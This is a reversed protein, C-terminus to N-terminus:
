RGGSGAVSGSVARAHRSAGVGKSAPQGYLEPHKYLGRERSSKTEEVVLPHAKAYADQRVGTVQWSVKANTADSAIQFAGNAIEKSIWASAKRGVITLQYRFDGNETEFWDPLTVTALGLEDTTVNGSYINVMESSEISAHNLYKNAPDTPHDIQFNKVEATLTGDVTVNGAFLGALGHEATTSGAGGTAWIGDGGIVGSAGYFDGGDGGLNSSSGGTSYVGAGGKLWGSGGMSWTGYGGDLASSAGGIFYGGYGGIDNGSDRGGVALVGHGGPTNAGGYFEGGDGSASAGKVGSTSGASYGYIAAVGATSSNTQAYLGFNSPSFGYLGYGLTSSGQVGYSNYSQGFVGSYQTSSGWVGVHAAADGWVGAIGTFGSTNGGGAVGHVGATNLTEGTTVAYSGTGVTSSAYIGVGTNSVGEVADGSASYGEVAAGTTANSSLVQGPAFNITGDHNITLGTEAPTTGNGYLLHLTGYPASTNNSNIESQLSFINTVAAKSTSNYGSADFYLQQSTRGGSTTATGTPELILTGRQLHAGNVDLAGQPSTTNIGLNSGSQFMVSDGIAAAGNFVPVYGSVGGATTVATVANSTIAEGSVQGAALNAAQGTGALAFASVPLGGLTTADAAKLAYPVSMLLVRRQPAAGAMQVELWRAEGSSFLDEPLGKSLSAGLMASYRHEEDVAVTQSEAWLPDGGQEDKYILFTMSVPGAPTRVDAIVGSYPVLAPVATQATAALPTPQVAQAHVAQAELSQGWGLLASGLVALLIAIEAIRRATRSTSNGFVSFERFCPNRTGGSEPVGFEQVGFEPVDFESVGFAPIRSEPIRSEPVRSEGAGMRGFSKMCNSLFM